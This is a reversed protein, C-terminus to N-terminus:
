EDSGLRWKLDKDDDDMEAHLLGNRFAFPTSSDFGSFSQPTSSTMDDYLNKSDKIIDTTNRTAQRHKTQFQEVLERSYRETRQQPVAYASFEENITKLAVYYHEIAIRLVAGYDIDLIKQVFLRHKKHDSLDKDSIPQVSVTPFIKTDKCYMGTLEEVKKSFDEYSVEWRSPSNNAPQSIYGFLAYLFDNKKGELVGKLYQGKLKGFLAPTEPAEAEIFFQELVGALKGKRENAFIYRQLQLPKPVTAQKKKSQAQSYAKENQDYISQVIELRRDQSEHNWNKITANPGFQQTTLLILSKYKTPDFRDDMWNKLTKWFCLHNDTLNDSYQKVETQDEGSVDGQTEILIKQGAQHMEYCKEVAVWLQHLTGRTSAVAGHKASSESM